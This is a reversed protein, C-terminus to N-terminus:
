LFQVLLGLIQISDPIVFSGLYGSCDQSLLVLSAADHEWNQGGLYRQCHRCVNKATMVQLPTTYWQGPFTALMRRYKLM